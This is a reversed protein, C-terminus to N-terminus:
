TRRVMTICRFGSKNSFASVHCPPNNLLQTTHVVIQGLDYQKSRAPRALSHHWRCRLGRFSGGAPNCGVEFVAQLLCCRLREGYLLGQSIQAKGRLELDQKSCRKTLFSHLTREDCVMPTSNAVLIMLTPVPALLFRIFSCTLGCGVGGEKLPCM